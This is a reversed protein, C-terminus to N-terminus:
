LSWSSGHQSSINFSCDQHFKPGSKGGLGQGGLWVEGGRVGGGKEIELDLVRGKRNPRRTGKGVGSASFIVFIRFTQWAIIALESRFHSGKKFLPKCRGGSTGKGVEKLPCPNLVFKKQPPSRPCRSEPSQGQTDWWFTEKGQIVLSMGFNKIGVGEHAPSGGM